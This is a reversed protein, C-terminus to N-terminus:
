GILPIVLDLPYEAQIEPLGDEPRMYVADEIRMGLGKEPYYLGPEITIIEGPQLV